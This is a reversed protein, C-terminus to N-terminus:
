AGASRIRSDMPQTPSFDPRDQQAEDRFRTDGSGFLRDLVARPPVPAPAEAKAKTAQATPSSLLREWHGANPLQSDPSDGAVELKWSIGAMWAASLPDLRTIRAHVSKQMDMAYPLLRSDRLILRLHMGRERAGMAATLTETTLWTAPIGHTRLTDRVAMVLLQRHTADRDPQAARSSGARTKAAKAAVPRSGFLRSVIGV